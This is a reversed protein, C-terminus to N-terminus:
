IPNENMVTVGEWGKRDKWDRGEWIRVFVERGKNMDRGMGNAM